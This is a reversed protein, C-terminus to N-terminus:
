ATNISWRISRLQVGKSDKCWLPTLYVGFQHRTQAQDADDIPVAVEHVTGRRQLRRTWPNTWPVRQFQSETLQSPHYSPLASHPRQAPIIHSEPRAVAVGSLPGFRFRVWSTLPEIGSHEVVTTLVVVNERCILRKQHGTAPGIARGCEALGPAAAIEVAPKHGWSRAPRPWDSRALGRVEGENSTIAGASANSPATARLTPRDAPVEWGPTHISFRTAWASTCQPRWFEGSEPAFLLHTTLRCISNLAVVTPSVAVSEGGLTRKQHGTAQRTASAIITRDTM